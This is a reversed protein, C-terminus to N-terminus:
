RTVAMLIITVVTALLLFSTAGLATMTRTMSSRLERLQNRTHEYRQQLYTHTDSLTKYKKEQESMYKRHSDAQEKINGQLRRNEVAMAAARDFWYHSSNTHPDGDTM